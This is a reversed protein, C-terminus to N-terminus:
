HAGTNASAPRQGQLYPELADMVLFIGAACTGTLYGLLAGSPVCFALVCFVAGVDGDDLRPDFLAVTLAFAPLIAAGAITSAARPMRGNFMQVICIALAQGGFFLYTVPPADLLRLGGFLLALATMIGLIASMGFRQPVKYKAPQTAPFSFVPPSRYLDEQRIVFPNEGYLEDLDIPPGYPYAPRKKLAPHVDYVIADVPQDLPSDRDTRAPHASDEPPMRGNHAACRGAQLAPGARALSRLGVRAVDAM